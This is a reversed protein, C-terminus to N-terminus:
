QVRYYFSTGYFHFDSGQTNSDVYLEQVIKHCFHVWMASPTSTFKLSDTWSLQNRPTATLWWCPLLPRVTLGGCSWVGNWSIVYFISWYKLILSYVFTEKTDSMSTSRKKKLRVWPYTLFYNFWFPSHKGSSVCYTENFWMTYWSYQKCVM